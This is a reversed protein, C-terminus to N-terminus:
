HESALRPARRRRREPPTLWRHVYVFMVILFTISGPVWM